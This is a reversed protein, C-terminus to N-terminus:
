RTRYCAVLGSRESPTWYRRGRFQDFSPLKFDKWYLHKPPEYARIEAIFDDMSELNLKSTTVVLAREEEATPKAQIAQAVRSGIRNAKIIAVM